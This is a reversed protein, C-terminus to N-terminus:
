GFMASSQNPTPRKPTHFSRLSFSALLGPLQGARRRLRPASHHRWGDADAATRQERRQRAGACHSRAPPQKNTTTTVPSAVKPPQTSEPLPPLLSAFCLATGAQGGRAMLLHSLYVGAGAREPSTRELTPGAGRRKRRAGSCSNAEPRAPCFRQPLTAADKDASCRRTPILQPPAPPLHRYPCPNGKAYHRQDESCRTQNQKEPLCPLTPM